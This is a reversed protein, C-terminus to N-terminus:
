CDFLLIIAGTRDDYSYALRKHVPRIALFGTKGAPHVLRMVVDHGTIIWCVPM